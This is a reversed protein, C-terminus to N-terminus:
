AVIATSAAKEMRGRRMKITAEKQMIGWKM